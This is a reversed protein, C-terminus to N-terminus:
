NTGMARQRFYYVKASLISAFSDFISDFLHM